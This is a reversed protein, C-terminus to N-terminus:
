APHRYSIVFIKQSDPTVRRAIPVKLADTESPVSAIGESSTLSALLMLPTTSNSVSSLRDQFSERFRYPSIEDLGFLGIARTEMTTM